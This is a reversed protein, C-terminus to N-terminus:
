RIHRGHVSRSDGGPVGHVSGVSIGTADNILIIELDSVYPFGAPDDIELSVTLDNITGLTGVTCGVLTAPNTDVDAQGGCAVNFPVALASETQLHALLAILVAAGLCRTLKGM